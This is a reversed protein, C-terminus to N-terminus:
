RRAGASSKMRQLYETTRDASMERRPEPLQQACKAALRNWNSHFLALAYGSDVVFQDDWSLFARLRAEVKDAGFTNILTRLLPGDRKLIIPPEHFRTEYGQRYVTLLKQVSGPPASQPKARLAKPKIDFLNPSNDAAPAV